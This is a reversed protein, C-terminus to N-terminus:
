LFFPPWIAATPYNGISNVRDARNIILLSLRRRHSVRHGQIKYTERGYDAYQVMAQVSANNNFIKQAGAALKYGSHSASDDQGGVDVNGVSVGEDFEFKANFQSWGAMLLGSWGGGWQPTRYIGMVDIVDEFNLEACKENADDSCAASIDGGQNAYGVHIGFGGDSPHSAFMYQGFVGFSAGDSGYDNENDEINGTVSAAGADVGVTFEANANVTFLFAALAAGVLYFKKM